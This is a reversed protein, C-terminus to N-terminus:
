NELKFLREKKILRYVAYLAPFIFLINLNSIIAAINETDLQPPLTSLFNNLIHIIIPYFLTKTREYILGLVIGMLFTYVIQVPEEHWLGFCLSSIIIPFYGGKIKKAFNFVLGRFLLEEVIPGLLAVSLFVWIYAESDLNSWNNTFSEMSDAIFGIKESLKEALFLWAASVGSMGFTMIICIIIDSFSVRVNSKDKKLFIYILTYILLLIICALADLMFGNNSLFDDANQGFIYMLIYIIGFFMEQIWKYSFVIIPILFIYLIIYKKNNSLEM